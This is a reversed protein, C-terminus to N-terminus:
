RRKTRYPIVVGNVIKCIDKANFVGDSQDEFRVYVNQTCYDHPIADRVTGFGRKPHFIEDGVEYYANPNREKIRALTKNATDADIPVSHWRELYSLIDFAVVDNANHAAVAEDASWNKDSFKVANHCRSPDAGVMKCAWKWDSGHSTERRSHGIYRELNAADVYYHAYEHRIVDIVEAEKTNPDNIFKPKFGFRKEGVYQYYGLASGHSALKIPLAAGNLGTKEDLKRIISRIKDETWTKTVTSM